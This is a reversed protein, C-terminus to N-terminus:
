VTHTPGDSGAPYNLLPVQGHAWADLIPQVIRWSEEAEDDRISLTSDGRLVDLLVRGYEPIDQPALTADLRIPKIGFPDGPGSGDVNLAIRDPGFRLRLVNARPEARADFALHQVPKFRIVVEQRNARLAKGARLTFPVGAWRRNDIWLTVEAFTETERRPAVGEEDAYAPITRGDIRGAGYHARLTQREVADQTLPRVDRLLDLKANRFDTEDLTAPPEMGVLCLVQLLHNQIMDRLAGASDYYSARGELALTEDWVIDVRDVHQANWVAEFIRNAFRLAIVNQVTQMGLFHDVRFVTRESFTKHLLCNLAQASALDEGFPKEIVIRSGEPLGKAALGEITPAFLASPLALYAALPEGAREVVRGVEEAETVDVRRYDVIGLLAARTAASLDTRAQALRESLHRRFAETTWDHRATGLVAFDPPLKGAAQLRALAPILYRSTLDGGAGFIVLRRIM